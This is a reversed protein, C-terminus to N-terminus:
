SCGQGAFTVSARGVNRESMQVAKFKRVEEQQGLPNKQHPLSLGLLGPVGTLKEKQKALSSPKSLRKQWLGSEYQSYSIPREGSCDCKPIQKM